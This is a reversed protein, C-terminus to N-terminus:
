KLLEINSLCMVFDAVEFAAYCIWVWKDGLCKEGPLIHVARTDLFCSYIINQNSYSRTGRGCFLYKLPYIKIFLEYKNELLISQCLHHWLICVASFPITTRIIDELTRWSSRVYRRYFNLPTSVSFVLTIYLGIRVNNYFYFYKLVLPFIYDFAKFVMLAVSCTCSFCVVHIRCSVMVHEDSTLLQVQEQPEQTEVYRFHSLGRTVHFTLSKGTSLVQIHFVLM